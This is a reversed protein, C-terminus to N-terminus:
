ASRRRDVPIADAEAESLNDDDDDDNDYDYNCDDAAATRSSCSDDRAPDDPPDSADLEPIVPEESNALRAGTIPSVDRDRDAARRIMPMDGIYCRDDDVNGNLKGWALVHRQADKYAPQVRRKRSYRSASESEAVANADTSQQQKARIESEPPRDPEESLGTIQNRSNYFMRIHADSPRKRSPRRSLDSDSGATPPGQDDAIVFQSTFSGRATSPRLQQRGEPDAISCSLPIDPMGDGTVPNRDRQDQVTISNAAPKLLRPRDPV